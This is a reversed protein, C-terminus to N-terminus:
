VALVKEQEIADLAEMINTSKTGRIIAKQGPYWIAFNQFTSEIASRIAGTDDPVASMIAYLLMTNKPDIKSIFEIIDEVVHKTNFNDFREPPEYDGCHVKEFHDVGIYGRFEDFLFAQPAMYCGLDVIVFDKPAVVSVAEYIKGMYILEPPELECNRQNFKSMQGSKKIKNLVLYNVSSM